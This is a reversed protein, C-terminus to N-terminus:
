GVVLLGAAWASCTAPPSPPAEVDAPDEAALTGMYRGSPSSWSSIFSSCLLGPVSRHGMTMPSHLDFANTSPAM